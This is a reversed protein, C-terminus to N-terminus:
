EFEKKLLQTEEGAVLKSRLNDFIGSVNESIRKSAEPDFDYVSQMGLVAEDIFKDTAEKDVIEYDRDARVDRTAIGGVSIVEPIESISFTMLFTIIVCLLAFSFWGIFPSSVFAHWSSFDAMSVRLFVDGFKRHARKDRPMKKM